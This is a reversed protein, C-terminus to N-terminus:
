ATGLRLWGSRQADTVDVEATYATQNVIAVRAVTHVDVFARSAGAAIAAAAVCVGLTLWLPRLRRGLGRGETHVLLDPRKM